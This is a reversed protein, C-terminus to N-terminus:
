CPDGKTPKTSIFLHDCYEDGDMLTKSREFKIMPNFAKVIVPDADCFWKGIDTAGLETFIEAWRCKTFRYGIMNPKDIIKEWEHTGYCRDDIIWSLTQVDNAKVSEGLKKWPKHFVEQLWTRKMTAIDEEGCKNEVARVLAVLSRAHFDAKEKIKGM